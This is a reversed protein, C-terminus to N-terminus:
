GITTWPGGYLARLMVARLRLLEDIDEVTASRATM